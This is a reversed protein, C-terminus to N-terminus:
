FLSGTPTLLLSTGHDLVDYCLRRGSRVSQTSVRARGRAKLQMAFSSSRRTWCTGAGALSYTHLHVWFCPLSLYKSPMHMGQLLYPLDPLETFEVYVVSALSLWPAHSRMNSTIVAVNDGTFVRDPGINSTFDDIDLAVLHPAWAALRGVLEGWRDYDTYNGGSFIESENFPTLPSDPPPNCSGTTLTAGPVVAETPPDLGLWM